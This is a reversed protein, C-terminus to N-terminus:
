ILLFIFNVYHNNFCINVTTIISNLINNNLPFNFKKENYINKFHEKYIKRDYINSTNM